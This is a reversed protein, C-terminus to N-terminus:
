DIIEARSLDGSDMQWTSWTTEDLIYQNTLKRYTRGDTDFRYRTGPAMDTLLVRPVEITVPCNPQLGDLKGTDEWLYLVSKECGPYRTITHTPQDNSVIRIPRNYYEAKDGPKLTSICVKKTAM